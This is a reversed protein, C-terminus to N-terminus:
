NNGFSFSSSEECANGVAFAFYLEAFAINPNPCICFLEDSRQIMHIAPTFIGGM